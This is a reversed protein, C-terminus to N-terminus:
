DEKNKIVFKINNKQWEYANEKNNDIFEQKVIIEMDYTFIDANVNDVEDYEYIIKIGMKRADNLLDNYEAEDKTNVLLKIYGKIYNNDFIKLLNKKKKLISNVPVLYNIMDRNSVLEMLIDATLLEYSIELFKAEYKKAVELVLSTDYEELGSITKKFDFKYYLPEGTYLYYKNMCDTDKFYGFAKEDEKINKKIQEFLENITVKDNNYVKLINTKKLYLLLYKFKNKTDIFDGDVVNCAFDLYCSTCIIVSLLFVENKNTRLVTMNNNTKYYEIISKLVNNINDNSYKIPNDRNANNEFYYVSAYKEIVAKALSKFEEKNKWLKNDDICIIEALIKAYEFLDKKKKEVYKDIVNLSM